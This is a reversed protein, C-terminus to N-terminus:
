DDDDMTMAGHVTHGVRIGAALLNLIFLGLYSPANEDPFNAKQWAKYEKWIEKKTQQYRSAPLMTEMTGMLITKFIADFKKNFSAWAEGEEAGKEFVGVQDITGFESERLRRVEEQVIRKLQQKSIKM